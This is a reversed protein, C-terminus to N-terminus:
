LAGGKWPTDAMGAAFNDTRGDCYNYKWESLDLGEQPQDLTTLGISFFDFTQGEFTITGESLVQMGCNRCFYRHCDKSRPQYDALESKSSPTLLTFASPSVPLSTFNPKQCVTCNCRTAVKPHDIPLAVTYTIAKCHCSGTFTQTETATTSAM